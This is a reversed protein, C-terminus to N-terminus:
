ADAEAPTVRPDFKEPLTEMNDPNATKVKNDEFVVTGILVSWRKAEGRLIRVPRDNGLPYRVPLLPQADALRVLKFVATDETRAFEFHDPHDGCRAAATRVTGAPEEWAEVVLGWKVPEPDRNLAREGTVPQCGAPAAVLTGDPRERSVNVFVPRTLVVEDGFPTLAYGPAVAVWQGLKPDAGSPDIGYKKRLDDASAGEDVKEPVLGLYVGWGRFLRNQRRFRELEYTQDQTLDAPLVVQRNFYRARARGSETPKPRPQRM